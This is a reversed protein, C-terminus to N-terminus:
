GRWRGDRGSHGGRWGASRCAISMMVSASALSFRWFSNASRESINLVLQVNVFRQRLQQDGFAEALQFFDGIDADLFEGADFAKVFFQGFFQLAAGGFRELAAFGRGRPADCASPTSSASASHRV